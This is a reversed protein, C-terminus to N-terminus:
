PYTQEVMLPRARSHGGATERDSFYRLLAVQEDAGLRVVRVDTPQLGAAYAPCDDRHVTPAGPGKPAWGAPLACTPAAIVGRFVIRGQSPGSSASTIALALVAAIFLITWLHRM